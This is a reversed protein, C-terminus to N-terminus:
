VLAEQAPSDAIFLYMYPEPFYGRDLGWELILKMM